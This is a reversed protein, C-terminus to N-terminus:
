DPPNEEEVDEAGEQVWEDSIVLDWDRCLMVVNMTSVFAAAQSDAEGTELVRAPEVGPAWVVWVGSRTVVAVTDTEEANLIARLVWTDDSTITWVARM